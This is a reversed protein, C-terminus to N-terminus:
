EEELYVFENKLEEWELPITNALLDKKKRSLDIIKNHIVKTAWTKISSKTIDYHKLKFWLHIRLEQAIDEWDLGWIKYRKSYFIIVPELAELYEEIIKKDEIM